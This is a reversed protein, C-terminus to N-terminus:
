RIAAALRLADHGVALEEEGGEEAELEADLLDNTLEEAWDPDALAGNLEEPAGPHRGM